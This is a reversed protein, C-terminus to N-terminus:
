PTKEIRTEKKNKANERYNGTIKLVSEPEPENDTPMVFLAQRNYSDIPVERTHEDAHSAALGIKSGAFRIGDYITGRQFPGVGLIWSDKATSWAQSTGSQWVPYKTKRYYAFVAIKAAAKYDLKKALSIEPTPPLAPVNPMLSSVTTLTSSAPIGCTVEHGENGLAGIRAEVVIDATEPSDQLLCKACVMQQRLSSIIYNSNVAGVAKVPQIYKTDLYVKQDALISFDIQAVSRDVAESALLQETATRSKMTGCGALSVVSLMTAILWQRWKPTTRHSAELTLTAISTRKM